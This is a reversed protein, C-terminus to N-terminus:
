YAKLANVLNDQKGRNLFWPVNLAIAGIILTPAIKPAQGIPGPDEVDGAMSSIGHILLGAGVAYLVTQVTRTTKAKKIYDLSVPNDALDYQLNRINVKKLESNDFSYKYHRNAYGFGGSWNMVDTYFISVRETDYLREAFIKFGGQYVPLFYREKGYQDRGKIYEVEQIKIKPGRREDIRVYPGSLFSGSNTIFAYNTFVDQGNNLKILIPLQSFVSYPLGVLLILAFLKKM